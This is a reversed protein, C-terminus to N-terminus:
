VSRNVASDSRRQCLPGKPADLPAHYVVAGIREALNRYGAESEALTEEGRKQETIDIGTKIVYEVSGQEDLLATNHWEILRCVGKKSCWYNRHRSPFHGAQLDSFMARVSADEEPLIFVDWLYKQRVDELECGTAEECARNLHVIRGQRDLVAVMAGTAQLVTHIFSQERALSKGQEISDLAVGLDGALQELLSREEPDLRAEAPVAVMLLGYANPGRALRCCVRGEGLAQSVSCRPCDEPSGDSLLIESRALCASWAPPVQQGERIEEPLGEHAQAGARAFQLLRGTPDTRVVWAVPYGRTEVLAACSDALLQSADVGRVIQQNVRQITKLMGNLRAIRRFAAEDKRVYRFAILGLIVLGVMAGLSDWLGNWSGQPLFGRTLLMDFAVVAFGM